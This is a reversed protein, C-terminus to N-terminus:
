KGALYERWDRGTDVDNLEGLLRVSLHARRARALTEPLVTATSWRINEFIAPHPARLGVLWYGGDRAPGLVMDQQELVTWSAAVHQRTVAPCDSGIIVVRQVGAAFSQAFARRLRAGLDGPGQPQLQWDPKLWPQIENQAEDPSFRLEVAKLSDLETLLKEVLQRYAAAALEPGLAKALRTKVEGPRPAKVFIILKEAQM